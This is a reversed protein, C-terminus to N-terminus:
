RVAQLKVAELKAANKKLFEEVLGVVENNNLTACRLMSTNLIQFPTQMEPVGSPVTTTRGALPLPQVFRAREISRHVIDSAEFDPLLRKLGREVFAEYLESDPAQLLPDDSGAYQPLYVLSRGATEEERHILNTMEILGTLPIRDDGINLVYYPTLPKKLGLVLCAVGLYDGGTPHSIEMQNGHPLLEESVLKRALRTPATFFVQDFVSVRAENGSATNGEASVIECAIPGGDTQRSARIGKVPTNFLITCGQGELVERLRKLLCHYGGSVYGLKEKNATGSRAGFLRKLTAWIFVAAVKDHFPGFKAKLLPQWFVRYTRRGCLRTLWDCATKRYLRYPNKLRTAYLIAMALRAKDLFSLLPFRLFDANNSMDFFKGCAYYGTGTTRWRLRDELGLDTVLRLLNQDQPLICHYFRDWTFEGFDRWRALGGLASGAEFMVVEHGAHSLRYSLTLGLMGGGVVAVKM